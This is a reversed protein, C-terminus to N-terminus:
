TQCLAGQNIKHWTRDVHAQFMSQNYTIKEQLALYKHQFYAPSQQVLDVLFAALQGPDAPDRDSIDRFDAVYSEIGVHALWAQAGNPAHVLFPRSGIVPKYIKESVFWERDVDFVTETM